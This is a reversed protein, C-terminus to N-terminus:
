KSIFLFDSGPENSGFEGGRPEPAVRELYKHIENLTLIGDEGGGSRLAELLKRAFPSHRGPVGDSVYEKGGSTVYRRTRYRMKRAIFTADDIGAYSGGRDRVAAILPDFTGGFCVDLV